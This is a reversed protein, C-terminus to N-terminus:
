RRWDLSEVFVIQGGAQDASVLEVTVGRPLTALASVLGALTVGAPVQVTHLARVQDPSHSRVSARPTGSTREIHDDPSIPM